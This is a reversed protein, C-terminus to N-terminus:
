FTPFSVERLSARKPMARLSPMGPPGPAKIEPLLLSAMAAQGHFVDEGSGEVLHGEGLSNGWLAWWGKEPPLMQRRPWSGLANLQLCAVHPEM